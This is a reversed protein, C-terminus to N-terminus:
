SISCCSKTFSSYDWNIRCHRSYSYRVPLYPLAMSRLTPFAPHINSRSISKGSLGTKDVVPLDDPTILIDALQSLPEQRGRIRVLVTGDSLISNAAAWSPGNPRLRPWGEGSVSQAATGAKLKFGVERDAIRLGPIREISHAAEPPIPGGIAAGASHSESGAMEPPRVRHLDSGAIDRSRLPVPRPGLKWPRASVRISHPGPPKISAVEFPPALRAIALLVVGVGWLRGASRGPMMIPSANEGANSPVM